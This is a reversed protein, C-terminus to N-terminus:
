AATTPPTPASTPDRDVGANDKLFLGTVGAVQQAVSAGSAGEPPLAVGALVIAVTAARSVWRWRPSPLRGDPLRLLLHTGMLGLPLVWVLNTFWLPESVDDLPLVLVSWFAGIVLM